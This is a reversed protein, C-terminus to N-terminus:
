DPLRVPPPAPRNFFRRVAPEFESLPLTPYDPDFSNQDYLECFSATEQYYPHGAYKDRENRDRTPHNAFHVAQFEVHHILLWRRRESLWPALLEAAALGHHNDSFAEPLDHFLAVVVMEDDLGAAHVRTATQLCHTYINVPAGMPDGNAFSRLVKLLGEGPGAAARHAREARDMIEWDRATAESLARFAAREAHLIAM